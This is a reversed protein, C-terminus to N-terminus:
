KIREFYFIVSISHKDYRGTLETVQASSDEETVASTGDSRQRLWRWENNIKSCHLKRCSECIAILICFLNIIATKALASEEKAFKVNLIIVYFDLNIFKHHAIM